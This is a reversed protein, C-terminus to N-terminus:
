IHLTAIATKFSNNQLVPPPPEKPTKQKLYQMGVQGPKLFMPSSHKIVETVWQAM